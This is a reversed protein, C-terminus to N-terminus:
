HLQLKGDTWCDCILVDGIIGRCEISHFYNLLRRYLEDYSLGRRTVLGGKDNKHAEQFTM